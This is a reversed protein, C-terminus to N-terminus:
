LSNEDFLTKLSSSNNIIESLTTYMSKKRAIYFLLVHLPIKDKEYLSITEKISLFDFPHSYIVLLDQYHFSKGLLNIWKIGAPFKGYINSVTIQKMVDNNSHQLASYRTKLSTSVTSSDYLFSLENLIEDTYINKRFMPTRFGIIKDSIANEIENKSSLIQQYLENRSLLDYKLNHAYGHSAIEHNEKYIQQVYSKCTTLIEGSVFFTGTAKNEKFIELIKETTKEIAYASKIRSGWDFEYDVTFYRKM